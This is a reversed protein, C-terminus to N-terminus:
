GALRARAFPELARELREMRAPKLFMGQFGAQRLAWRSVQHQRSTLAFVPARTMGALELADADELYLDILVGDHPGGSWLVAAADRSARAEGAFGAAELAAQMEVRAAPDDDIVLVRRKARPAPFTLSWAMRERVPAIELRGELAKAADAAARVQPDVARAGGGSTEAFIDLRVSEGEVAGVIRLRRGGAQGLAAEALRRVATLALAPDAMRADRLADDLMLSLAAGSTGDLASDLARGIIFHLNCGPAQREPPEFRNGPSAAEAENFIARGM